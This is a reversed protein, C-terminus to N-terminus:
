EAAKPPMEVIINDLATPTLLGEMKDTANMMANVAHAENREAEELTPVTTHTGLEPMIQEMEARLRKLHAACVSEEVEVEHVWQKMEASIMRAQELRSNFLEIEEQRQELFSRARAIKEDSYVQALETSLHSMQAAVELVKPELTGLDPHDRLYALRERVADFESNLQFTSQRDAAHVAAYAKAVDNMGITFRRHSTELRMIRGNSPMFFCMGMALVTLGIQGYMGANEVPAGNYQLPLSIWAWHGFAAMLTAGLMALAALAFITLALRQLLYQSFQGFARVSQM